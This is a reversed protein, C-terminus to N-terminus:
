PQTEGKLFRKTEALLVELARWDGDSMVGYGKCQAIEIWCQLREDLTAPARQGVGDTTSVTGPPLRTM